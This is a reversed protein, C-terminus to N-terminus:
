NSRFTFFITGGTGEAGEAWISGGHRHMIRKASALRLTDKPLANDLSSDRFAEFLREAQVDSFGAGNNRVFLIKKGNRQFMGLEIRGPQSAPIFDIANCILLSIVLRAMAKDCYCSIWPQIKFNIDRDRYKLKIEDVVELALKDIKVKDRHLEGIPLEALKQGIEIQKNLKAAVSELSEFFFRTKEDFNGACQTKLLDITTNIEASTNRMQQTLTEQLEELDQKTLVLDKNRQQLSREKQATNALFHMGLYIGALIFISFLVRAALEHYSPTLLIESVTGADFLVADLVADAIAAFPVMLLGWLFLRYSSKQSLTKQM